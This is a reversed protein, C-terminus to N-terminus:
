GFASRFGSFKLPKTIFFGWTGDPSLLWDMQGKIVNAEPDYNMTFEYNGPIIPETPLGSQNLYGPDLRFYQDNQIILMINEQLSTSENAPKLLVMSYNSNQDQYFTKTYQELGQAMSGVSILLVFIMSIMGTLLVKKMPKGGNILTILDIRIIGQIGFPTM